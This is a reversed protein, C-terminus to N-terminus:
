TIDGKISNYYLELKKNAEDLDTEKNYIQVPISRMANDYINIGHYQWLDLLKHM